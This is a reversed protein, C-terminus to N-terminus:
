RRRTNHQAPEALYLIRGCTKCFVLTGANMLENVMQPTVGVYCGHCAGDEVPAMADAGRQKLVRRYQDLQDPPIISEAALIAAELEALQARQSASRTELEVKLTAVEAELAKVDAELAALDKAEKDQAEMAQLVEDELRAVNKNDAQIQNVIANYEDQKRITNLKVRLDDVKVKISAIQTEKLKSQAKNEKHDKRAKEVATRRSELVAQRAALTKPFSELQNRITRAQDHLTHLDRLNAAAPM